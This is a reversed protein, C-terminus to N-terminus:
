INFNLDEGKFISKVPLCGKWRERHCVKRPFLITALDWSWGEQMQHTVIKKFFVVVDFNETRPWM